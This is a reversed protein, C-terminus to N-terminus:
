GAERADALFVDWFLAMRLVDNTHEATHQYTKTVVWRLPVEGWGTTRVGTWAAPDLRALLVRQEDRGAAFTRLWAEPEVSTRDATWAAEEDLGEETFPPGDLWLRMTPLAIEREYWVLHYVHRLTSWEGLGAPPILDLRDKPVQRVAWDYGAASRRLEDSLWRMEDM